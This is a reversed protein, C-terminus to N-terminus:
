MWGRAYGPSNKQYCERSGVASAGSGIGRQRKRELRSGPDASLWNLCSLSTQRQSNLLISDHAGEQVIGVRTARGMQAEPVDGFRERVARPMELGTGQELFEPIIEGLMFV